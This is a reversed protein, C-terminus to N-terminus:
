QTHDLYSLKELAEYGMVSNQNPWAEQLEQVLKNHVVNSNLLHFVGVWSRGSDGLLLYSQPKELLKKELTKIAARKLTLLHHYVIKHDAKGASSSRVINRRDPEINQRASGRIRSNRLDHMEHVLRSRQSSRFRPFSVWFVPIANGHRLAVTLIKRM